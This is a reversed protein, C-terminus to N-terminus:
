EIGVWNTGDYWFRATTYANAGTNSAPTNVFIANWGITRGGTGDQKLIMVLECGFHANTPAGVVINGTLTVRHYTAQYPDPTYAANFAPTVSGGMGNISISNGGSPDSGSKVATGVTGGSSSAHTLRINNNNCISDIFLANLQNNGNAGRETCVVDVICNSTGPSSTSVMHVAAWTGAGQRSNSSATGQVIVRQANRMYFAAGQCDQAGCSALIKTGEEANTFGDLFFAHGDGATVNGAYFAKCNSLKIESSRLYFGHRGSKDSTCNSMWSDFSSRFSIEDCYECWVNHWRNESQGWGSLGDGKTNKVHVNEVLQHPDFDEAFTAQTNYPNLGFYIGIAKIQTVTTGSAATADTSAEYGGSVGTLTNGSVAQYYLRNSGITIVGGGGLFNSADTLSITSNGATYQASLTTTVNSQRARNGDVTMNRVATFFASNNATVDNMIVPKNSSAALHIMSGYGNGELWVRNKLVLGSVLFSNRTVVTGGGAASCADIASQIATTQDGGRSIYFRCGSQSRNAANTLTVTTANTFGSITTHHDQLSSAGARLIVINKGVDAATFTATASTFTASGSTAVGDSYFSDPVANYPDDEVNIFVGRHHGDPTHSVLAWTNLIPAWADTDGGATPLRAMGLIMPLLFLGFCVKFWTPQKSLNRQAREHIRRRSEREHAIQRDSRKKKSPSKYLPNDIFTLPVIPKKPEVGKSVARAAQPRKPLIPHRLWIGKPM